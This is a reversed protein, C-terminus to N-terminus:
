VVPPPTAGATGDPLPPPVGPGLWDAFFRTYDTGDDAAIEEVVEVLDDTTATAGGFRDLYTRLIRTFTDDGVTLRLAHLALAGREYVAQSFMEERGPDAAAADPDASAFRHEQRAREAVPVGRAHEDWLWEFYTAFGENLWIDDWRDLTVHDGFWQHVLEHALISSGTTGPAFLSFTQAEFALGRPGEDPVLVGYTDFPFEGLWSEFFAIQEATEAAAARASAMENPGYANRLIVGGPTTGADELILDGIAVQTLYTSMPAPADWVWTTRDGATDQSTLTGNAIATLPAPVDLRFTFSAKDSPHDNAPFWTRAGDPENLTIAGDETIMWGNEAGLGPIVSTGPTGSYKVRVTFDDDARIPRRPRVALEGGDRTFRAPTGDVSVSAVDLGTLDLNFRRLRQTASAEIKTDGRLTTTSPDYAVGLDYHEVDYGRNGLEPYYPDPVELSEPGNRARDSSTAAAPTVPVVATAATAAM